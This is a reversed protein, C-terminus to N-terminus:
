SGLKLEMGERAAFVLADSGHRRARHTGEEVMQDIIADSHMPDHHTLAIQRVQAQVGLDVATTARPHGWGVKTPYEQDTYQGDVVLLDAGQCFAVLDEPLRRLVSSDTNCEEANVIVRDLENDTCYVVSAGHGELRYAYSGGPHVQELWTVQLGDIAAPGDASLFRPEIRASLDAFDVPFYDSGMQGSLLDHFRTDGQQTGYVALTRDRRYAPVFFPFGQIHDWHAHSFLVHVTEPAGYRSLLDLGLERIGTGADLVITADASRVEYCSTNGGYIRTRPGPTPISGRVGWFKFYLAM